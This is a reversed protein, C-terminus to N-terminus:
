TGGVGNVSGPLHDDCKKEKGCKNTSTRSANLFSTAGKKKKKREMSCLKIVCGGDMKMFHLDVRNGGTLPCRGGRNGGGGGKKKVLPLTRGFWNGWLGGRPKGENGTGCHEVM